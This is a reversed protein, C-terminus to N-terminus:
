LRVATTAGVSLTRLPGSGYGFGPSRDYGAKLGVDINHSARYHIGTWTGLGWGRSSRINVTPLGGSSRWFYEALLRTEIRWDKSLPLSFSSGAGVTSLRLPSSSASTGDIIYNIRSMGLSANIGLYPNFFFTGELQTSTGTSTRLQHGGELAYRGVPILFASSLAVTATPINIPAYCSPTSRHNDAFLAEALCCGVESAVIGIGAGEMVDSPWHRHHRIRLLGTATATSFAGFTVWPSLHGYERALLTATMFATATHGSPFSRNDTADPRMRKISRKLSESAGYTLLASFASNAALQRWSSRSAVGAAKLTIVTLAPIWEVVNDINSHRRSLPAPLRNSLKADQQKEVFGGIILPMGVLATATLQRHTSQPLTDTAMTRPQQAMASFSSLLSAALLVTLPPILKM